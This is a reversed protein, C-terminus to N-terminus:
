GNYPRDNTGVGLNETPNFPVLGSPKRRTGSGCICKHNANMGDAKKKLSLARGETGTCYLYGFSLETKGYAFHASYFTKTEGAPGQPGCCKCQQIFYFKKRCTAGVLRGRNLWILHLSPNTFYSQELKLSLLTGEDPEGEDEGPEPERPGIVELELDVENKAAAEFDAQQSVARAPSSELWSWFAAWGWPGPKQVRKVISTWRYTKKM